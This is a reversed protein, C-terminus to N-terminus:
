RLTIESTMKKTINKERSFFEENAVFQENLYVSFKINDVCNPINKQLELLKDHAAIRFKEYNNIFKKMCPIDFLKYTYIVYIYKVVQYEQKENEVFLYKIYDIANEVPIKDFKQCNEFIDTLKKYDFSDKNDEVVDVMFKPLDLYKGINKHTKFKCDLKSCFFGKNFGKKITSKCFSKKTAIAKMNNKMSAVTM